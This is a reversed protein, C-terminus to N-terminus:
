VYQSHFFSEHSPLGPAMAQKHMHFWQTETTTTTTTPPPTTTHYNNDLPYIYSLKKVGEKRGKGKKGGGGVEKKEEDPMSALSSPFDFSIEHFTLLSSVSEGAFPPFSIFFILHSSCDNKM